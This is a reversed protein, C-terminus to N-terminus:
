SGGSIGECGVVRVKHFEVTTEGNANVTFHHHEVLTVKSGDSGKAVFRMHDTNTEVLVNDQKVNRINESDSSRFHGTYTPGTGDEPVMVSKSFVVFRYHLAETEEFYTFHEVIHDTATVKYPEESGCFALVPENGFSVSVKEVNTDTIPPQAWATGAAALVVLAALMFVVIIRRM